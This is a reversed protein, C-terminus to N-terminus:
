SAILPASGAPQSSNVVQEKQVKAAQLMDLLHNWFASGGSALIGTVFWALWDATNGWEFPQYKPINIPNLGSLAAVFIGCVIAITQVAAAYRATGLNASLVPGLWQKVTETVRETAVSLGIMETLFITWANFPDTGM